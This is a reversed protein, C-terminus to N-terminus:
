FKVKFYHMSNEFWYEIKWGNQRVIKQVIALGLGHGQSAGSKSFRDYLKNTDLSESKSTNSFTLENKQIAVIIKGNDVNHRVANLFLNNIMIEVLAPIAVITVSESFNTSIAIQKSAAQEVFFAMPKEIFEQLQVTQKEGYLEHGIKSLLLLNKNLRNLRTIDSELDHVIESQEKTLESQSLMEVKSRFLALPTQLEHAANEIFESKSQYIKRNKKILRDLNRNLTEFEAINTEEFNMKTNRDIEFDEIRDLTKYFPLWLKKSLYRMILFMGGFLISIIGVFIGAISLVMDQNEIMNIRGSYTYMKGEIEVPANIERYPENENELKDFYFREFLSDRKVAHRDLIKVNRSYRNWTEIDSQKFHPLEDEFFELKQLQLTEDTESIYLWKIALYILPAAILLIIVIFLLLSETTKHLLNRKTMKCNIVLETFRRLTIARVM